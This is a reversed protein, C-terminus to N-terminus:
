GTQPKSISRNWKTFWTARGSQPANDISSKEAARHDQFRQRWEARSAKTSGCVIIRDTQFLKMMKPIVVLCPVAPLLNLGTMQRLNSFEHWFCDKLIVSQVAGKSSMRFLQDDHNWVSTGCISERCFHRTMRLLFWAKLAQLVILSIFLVAYTLFLSRDNSSTLLLVVFVSVTILDILWRLRGRSQFLVQTRTPFQCAFESRIEEHFDASSSSTSM